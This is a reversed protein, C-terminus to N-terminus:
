ESQGVASGPVGGLSTWLSNPILGADGPITVALEGPSELTLGLHLWAPSESLSASSAPPLTVNEKTEVACKSWMEM